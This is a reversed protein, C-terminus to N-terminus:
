EASRWGAARLSRLPPYDGIRRFGARTEFASLVFMLGLGCVAAGVVSMLGRSPIAMGALAGAAYGALIIATSVYGRNRCRECRPIRLRILDQRKGRIVPQGQGDACRRAEMTLRAEAACAPDAPAGCPWCVAESAEPEPRTM